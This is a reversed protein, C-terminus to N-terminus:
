KDLVVFMAGRTVYRSQQRYSSGHACAWANGADCRRGWSKKGKSNSWLTNTQTDVVVYVDPKDKDM